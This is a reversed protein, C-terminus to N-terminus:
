SASNKEAAALEAELSKVRKHYSPRLRSHGYVTGVREGPLPVKGKELNEKKTKVEARASAIEEARKKFENIRTDLKRSLKRDKTQFERTQKTLERKRIINGEPIDVPETETAEPPPKSTFSVVGDEDVYKYIKNEAGVDVTLSLALSICIGILGGTTFKLKGLRM